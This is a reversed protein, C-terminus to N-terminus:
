RDCRTAHGEGGLKTLQINRRSTAVLPSAYDRTTSGTPSATRSFKASRM